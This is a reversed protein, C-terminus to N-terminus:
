KQEPPLVINEPQRKKGKKTSVRVIMVVILVLPALIVLVPFAGVIFVLLNEGAEGLGYMTNTFSSQMREWLSPIQAVTSVRRVERIEITITVYEIQNDLQRIMSEYYEIEYQVKELSEEVQLLAELSAAEELLELLRAEQKRLSTLHSQTDVYNQTVDETTEKRNVVTAAEGIEQLMAEAQAKPIRIVLTAWTYNYSSSKDYNENYVEYKEFYGNLSSVTDTLRQLAVQLDTTETELYVTRILKRNEDVVNEASTGISSGLNEEPKMMESEFDEAIGGADYDSKNVAGSCGALMYTSIILITVLLYVKRM